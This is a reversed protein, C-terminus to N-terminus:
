IVGFGDLAKALFWTGFIASMVMLIVRNHETLWTSTSELVADSRSPLTVAVGILVLHISAALVVYVVFTAIGAGRGISADGIAGVVGLTFVWFKAGIIIIAAGAGFCKVASMQDITTLWKPSSGDPDDEKLYQRVATVLLLLAVVLLLTSAILGAGDDASADASAADSSTLILGFVVGQALRVFAMGAVWALAAGRSRRLLLITVIIQMPVFAAGFILPVLTTWLGTM